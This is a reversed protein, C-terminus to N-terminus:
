DGQKRSLEKVQEYLQSQMKQRATANEVNREILENMYKESYFQMHRLVSSIFQQRTEREIRM